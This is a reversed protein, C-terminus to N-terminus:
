TFRHICEQYKTEGIMSGKEMNSNDMSLLSLRQQKLPCPSYCALVSRQRIQTAPLILSSNLASSASIGSRVLDNQRCVLDFFYRRCVVYQVM